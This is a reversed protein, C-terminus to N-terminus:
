TTEKRQQHEYRWNAEYLAQMEDYSLRFNAEHDVVIPRTNMRSTRMSLWSPSVFTIDDRGLYRALGKPYTLHHNVWVYVAFRPAEVIQKTTRGSQREETM